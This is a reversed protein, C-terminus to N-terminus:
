QFLVMLNRPLSWRSDVSDQHLNWISRRGRLWNKDSKSKFLQLIYRGGRVFVSPVQPNGDRCHFFDVACRVIGQNRREQWGWVLNGGGFDIRTLIPSPLNCLIDVVGSSCAPFMRIETMMGARGRFWGCSSYYRSEEQGAVGLGFRGGRFDIRTLKPSPLNFFIDVVGSLCAPFRWIETTAGARGRFALFTMMSSPWRCCNHLSSSCLILLSVKLIRYLYATIDIYIQSCM